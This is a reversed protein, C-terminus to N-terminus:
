AQMKTVEQLVEKAHNDVNVKKWIRKIIGYEDILFTTREIGMYEKGMMNKLIYVGYKECVDTNADSALVFPLCYKRVFKYHSQLDDKSVGIIKCHAKDFDGMLDGFDKAERTCGPTDDKPYFYLVVKQGKLEKLSIYDNEGVPLTFAPASMGEM